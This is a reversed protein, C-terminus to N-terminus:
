AEDYFASFEKMKRQVDLYDKMLKEQLVADKNAEANALDQKLKQSIRAWYKAEAKKAVHLANETFDDDLSTICINSIISKIKEDNVENLLMNLFHEPLTQDSLNPLLWKSILKVMYPHSFLSSLNQGSHLNAATQRFIQLSADHRHAIAKLITEFLKLDNKDIPKSPVPTSFSPSLKVESSPASAPNSKSHFKQLNKRASDLIQRTISFGKLAAEIRVEKGIPDTYMALWQGVRKIAQTKEESGKKSYEIASEIRADLLPKANSLIEKMQTQGQPLPTGNEDFLVQDPDLGEPMAAGYLIMGEQLGTEMVRETAAIGAKDGDFLIIIRDALRRFISLHEPGLATGCTAVTNTFGAAHLALVDFYGEVVIIERTERINKQAQYLGFALKSKQFTVSDSSNLYKPKEGQPNEATPISRGGFGAIKGRLDFIPFLARNRFLDYFGPGKRPVNADSPRILGLEKALPLPAQKALLHETLADWQPPAAGLYFFRALEPTVGRRKFYQEITPNQGLQSHYFSAVFLNLRFATSLKQRRAEEQKRAEPSLAASSDWERPLPLKAREALEEVAESFSISHIETVFDILDGGKKCGYCFYVQKNESVSFSPSREQHFPCLGLFNAGSKRLVVHEGVVEILNITGKLKQLFEPPIRNKPSNM